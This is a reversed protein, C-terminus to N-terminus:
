GESYQSSQGSGSCSTWGSKFLEFALERVGQVGVM